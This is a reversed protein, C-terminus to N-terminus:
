PDSEEPAPLVTPHNSIDFPEPIPPRVRRPRPCATPAQGLRPDAAQAEEVKPGDHWAFLLAATALVLAVTVGRRTASASPTPLWLARFGPISRSSPPLRGSSPSDLRSWKRWAPPEGRIAERFTQVMEGASAFRVAPDHALAKEFWGDLSRPLEPRLETPRKFTGGDIAFYLGELSDADFPSRRTLAFYAVAALSFLDSREDTTEPDFMHEPSMYQATGAPLRDVDLCEDKNKPKAVGFDLLKVSIGAGAELFVNEPKVDRHVIGAAHAKGIADGVQALIEAVDFVAMAGHRRVRQELNEGRLLELVLYPEDSETLRCDLVRVVHPSDITATMRAERLFRAGASPMLAWQRSMLKVAVETGLVLHEALWISGM